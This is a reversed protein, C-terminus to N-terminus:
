YLFIFSYTVLYLGIGILFVIWGHFAAKQRICWHAAWLLLCALVLNLLSFWLAHTKNGYGDPQLQANFHLPIISPLRSWRFFMYVQSLGIFIWGLVISKKLLSTSEDESLEIEADVLCDSTLSSLSKIFQDPNEPSILYNHFPTEIWIGNKIGSLYVMAKGNKTMFYGQNINIWGLGVIKYRLFQLCNEVLHISVIDHLPIYTTRLFRIILHTDTITYQLRAYGYVYCSVMGIILLLSGVTLLQATFNKSHILAFLAPVSTLLLFGIIAWLSKKSKTHNQTHFIM